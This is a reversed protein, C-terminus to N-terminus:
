EIKGTAPNYSRIKPQQATAQQAIAQQQIAPANQANPEAIPIGNALRSKAQNQISRLEEIGHLLRNSYGQPSEGPIPSYSELMLNLAENTSPLQYAKMLAEVATKLQAQGRAQTSPLQYNTGLYNNGLGQFFSKGRVSASQFQPLDQVTTMLQSKARDIAGITQQDLSVQRNTETSIAKGTKPDFYTGGQGGRSPSKSPDKILGDPTVAAGQTYTVAGTVPDISLSTSSKPTPIFGPIVRPEGTLSNVQILAPKGNADLVSIPATYNKSGAGLLSLAAAPNEGALLGAIQKQAQDQSIQGGLLGTGPQNRFPVQTAPVAPTGILNQIAKANDIKQQTQQNQLQAQSALAKRYQNELQQTQGARVDTIGKGLAQGFTIPTPSYGSSQLLSASLNLADPSQLFDLIGM